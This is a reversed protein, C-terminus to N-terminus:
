GSQALEDLQEILSAQYESIRRPGRPREGLRIAIVSTKM